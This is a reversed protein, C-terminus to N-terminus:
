AQWETHFHGKEDIREYTHAGFYDRQAQILNAPLWESRYSDYYGLASMLAPAPIGHGAAMCVVDRLDSQREEVWKEFHPDVLLNFLEPNDTYATRIDELLAARIICGGRWIRAVDALQLDYGYVDSAQRLQNMGQTYTLIMAAYLANRLQGIFTTTDGQFTPRPGDLVRSATTREEKFASLNRMAVAADITPVPTGLNMADQATWKGTGKQKAADLIEDILWDDSKPDPEAFIDATIELLYSNLEGQNWESYLQHLEPETLGVGRKLLDYSEAILQMMGYEIGNHVMKVYHGAAGPGLFTVCPDGDVQAAAAEFIPQVRRYAAEDGGPMLSPGHRAGEEGGSVGVGLYAIGKARLREARAATDEYHSNGGDMILDGAALHPLLQDIVADVPKGAPVLMMMARPVALADVFEEISQVGALMDDTASAAFKAVQEGDRDFGVVSFGHDAMNHAFNRGMVGLGIMGIQYREQKM